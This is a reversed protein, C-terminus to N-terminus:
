GIPAPGLLAIKRTTFGLEVPKGIPLRIGAVVM